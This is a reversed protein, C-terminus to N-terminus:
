GLCVANRGGAKARYLAADARELMEAVDEGARSLTVGISCTVKLDPALESPLTSKWPVDCASLRRSRWHRKAPLRCCCCSSKVAM